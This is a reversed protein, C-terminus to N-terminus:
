HAHGHDHVHGHDLEEPTAQRLATVAVDFHLVKGALPHNFNLRVIDEGVSDIYAELEDGDENRLQLETGLELPIDEPFEKRPIDAFAEPDEEGYGESPAVTVKKHEGVSMGYIANELGPVIQGTGQIFHIPENGESTDFVEGDITLTYDLSVVLDDVVLIPEQENKM